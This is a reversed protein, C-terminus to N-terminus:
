EEKPPKGPLKLSRNRCPREGLANRHAGLLANEMGDKMEEEM